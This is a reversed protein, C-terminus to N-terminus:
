RKRRAVMEVEYEVTEGSEADVVKAIVSYDDAFSFGARHMTMSLTPSLSIREDGDRLFKATAASVVREDDDMLRGM